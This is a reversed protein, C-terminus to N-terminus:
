IEDSVFLSFRDNECTEVASWIFLKIPYIGCFGMMIGGKIELKYQQM